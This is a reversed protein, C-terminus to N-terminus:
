EYVRIVDAITKRCIPCTSRNKTFSLSCNFCLCKHGCAYIVVNPVKDKCVCCKNSRLLKESLDGTSNSPDEPNVATKDWLKNIFLLSMVGVFADVIFPMTLFIELINGQVIIQQIIYYIFISISLISTLYGHILVFIQSQNKYGSVGLVTFIMILTHIAILVKSKRIMVALLLGIFGSFGQIGLFVYMRLINKGEWPGSDM